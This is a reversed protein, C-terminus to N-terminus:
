DLAGVPMVFALRAGAGLRLRKDTSVLVTDMPPHDPVNLALHRLGTVQGVKVKPMKTPPPIKYPTPLADLNTSQRGSSGSGVGMPMAERLDTQDMEDNIPYLAAILVMPVERGDCCETTFHLTLMTASSASKATIATVKGELEVGAQVNCTRHKWLLVTRLMVSDGVKLRSTDLGKELKAWLPTFEPVPEKQSAQAAADIHLLLM